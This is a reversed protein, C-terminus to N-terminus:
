KGLNILIHILREPGIFKFIFLIITWMYYQNISKKRKGKKLMSIYKFCCTPLFSLFEQTSIKLNEKKFPIHMTLCLGVFQTCCLLETWPNVISNEDRVATSQAPSPLSVRGGISIYSEGRGLLSIFVYLAENEMELGQPNM